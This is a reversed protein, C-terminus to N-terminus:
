VRGKSGGGDTLYWPVNIVVVKPDGRFLLDAKLWTARHNHMLFEYWHKEVLEPIIVAITRGPYEKKLDDIFNVVPKILDRYPSTVIKLAPEPLGAARAPGEVDRAWQSRLDDGEQEDVKVHVAFIDRSLRLGFRLAKETLLNWSQVPVVVVPPENHSLDLPRLCSLQRAVHDYHRRVKYFLFLIAPIILLTIWAGEVFKAVLIVVLAMGTAVAGVGNVMKSTGAGRGGERRWHMVMGAQSLTFAGFAGVAFLPILRDTIGGFIILLLASLMALIMIGVSYVLRRGLNAFGRPLYSDLAILRCLRPFDAFSTNASLVLVALVSGITIYYLTGRGIVAATLQSIISQYGPKTQDMAGIVYARSLYAIGGLLVGLLVVIATLTRHANQVAPKAFAGVGNSVAEVGTMATCGSAFSRLLLWLGVAEVAPPLAPPAVGPAPHGGSLLARGVGIALVTLLSALFIYTPVGFIIGSERVGRLNLITILSLAVLCLGLTYRHLAPVASVLAAIGASIGVAVNLVYDIMLAAAALLGAGEGLNEKAVTYSGGGSPYAAITQRYSFYLIALILLIVLIIPGIYALGAVGLPLLITLAAEPGYAASSLGDLGLTPLGVLVGIKQEEQESSALPRGLLKNLLSM